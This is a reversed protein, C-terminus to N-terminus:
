KISKLIEKIERPTTNKFLLTTIMTLTVSAFIAMIPHVTNAGWLIAYGLLIGSFTALTSNLAYRRVPGNSWILPPISSAIYAIFISVAGFIGYIPVFIMFLILFAAFQISGTAIIKRSDNSNNFKSISNMVIISPLIGISLIFLTSGGSTYESGLMSLIYVPSVALASILPSTLSLGVRLSSHTLDSKALSSAPIVTYSISSALSGIVISIMMTMYFIGIEADSIAFFGLLVVSLSLIVIRSFKAPAKILAERTVQVFM